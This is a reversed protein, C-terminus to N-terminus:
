VVGSARFKNGVSRNGMCNKSFDIKASTFKSINENELTHSNNTQEGLEQQLQRLDTDKDILQQQLHDADRQSQQLQRQLDTQCSLCSLMLVFTLNKVLILLKLESDKNRQIDFKTDM